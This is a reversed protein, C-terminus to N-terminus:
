IRMKRERRLKLMRRREELGVPKRWAVFVSNGELADVIANRRKRLFAPHPQMSFRPRVAPLLLSDIYAAISLASHHSVIISHGNSVM